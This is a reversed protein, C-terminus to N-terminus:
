ESVTITVSPRNVQHCESEADLRHQRVCSRADVSALRSFRLVAWAYPAALFLDMAYHEGLGLTALTTLSLHVAGVIRGIRWHRLLWFVILAMAFHVSPVGNPYANISVVHLSGSYNEPFHPLGYCPGAVPVLWYIPLALGGCLVFAILGRKAEDYNRWLATSVLAAFLFMQWASYDFSALAALVPVSKLLLAVHNAPHGVLADAQNFYLDLKEQRIRKLTELVFHTLVSVPISIFTVALIYDRIQQSRRVTAALVFGTIVCCPLSLFHAVILSKSV